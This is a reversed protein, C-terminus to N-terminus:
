AAPVINNNRHFFNDPDYTAKIKGLRELKAGFADGVGVQNDEDAIGTFNLYTSGTGFEAIESWTERVWAINADNESPDPWTGEVSVMYSASREGFASEDEGVRNVQGGSLWVVMSSLPAPRNPAKAAILDVVEDSLENLYTSKWYAQLEGRPFFPDFASQVFRYPMPQSIDALPTALERLPQLVGMGEEMDGSYTAGVVLCNQDHIPEPLHPDAPMTLTVALASVEDPASDGFERFGRLVTAADEVPYFVGAFAVIPGVPHLKFTFTTVVGFNGGGGRLAWLLDPNTDESATRIEGDVCVVEAAVLNDCALGYKRRLWGYGGGLTLGAVGTDSVVGGPTALGFLQAERDVDGWLAGGQVHALMAERDIHVGNMQALDIVMGGDSSSLGAISHGGGRVTVELGHERAFNVADVVDATGSCLVALSPRDTYMASFPPRIQEYGPDAPTLAQGRLQIRLEALAEEAIAGTTTSTAAM